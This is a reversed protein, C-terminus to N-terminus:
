TPVMAGCNHLPLRLAVRNGQSEAIECSKRHRCGFCWWRYSKATGGEREEVHQERDIIIVKTTCGNGGTGTTHALVNHYGKGDWPKLNWIRKLAM